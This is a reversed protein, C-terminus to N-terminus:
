FTFIPFFYLKKMIRTESRNELQPTSTPLSKMQMQEARRNLLAVQHHPVTVTGLSASRIVTFNETEALVEGLIRDGDKLIAEVM